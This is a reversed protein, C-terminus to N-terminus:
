FEFSNTITWKNPQPIRASAVAGNPQATVAILDDTGFIDRVNFQVSWRVKDNLLRRGYRLWFDYDIQTSGYFPKTVDYVWAGVENRKAPFGIAVRDQWRAAGGVSWGRLRGSRFGNAHDAPATSAHPAIAAPVASTEERSSKARRGAVGWVGHVHSIRWARRAEASGPKGHALSSPSIPREGGSM